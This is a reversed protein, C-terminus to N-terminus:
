SKPQCVERFNCFHCTDVDKTPSFSEIPLPINQKADTLSSKMQQIKTDLQESISSKTQENIAHHTCTGTWLNEVRIHIQDLPVQYRQHVYLAYLALQENHKEKEEKGTKWDVIIWKDGLRYLTDLKVYIKTDLYTFNNLQEVEIWECHPHHTMEHLSQSNLLHTVCIPIKEKISKIQEPSLRQYYYIEHLMTRQTPSEWWQNSNGSEIYAQNLLNRIRHTLDSATYRKQHKRWHQIYMEAIRHILDGLVLHLNKLQKLRYIKQVEYPQDNQWGLHAAYYHYYYKRRCSEFMNQRSQSWSWEPYPKTHM